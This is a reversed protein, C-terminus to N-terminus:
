AKDAKAKRRAALAWGALGSGLLLLSTPEPVVTQSPYQNIQSITAVAPGDTFLVVGIDKTVSLKTYLDDFILSESTPGLSSVALSCPVGGCLAASGNEDRFTESVNFFGFASTGPPASVGFGDISLHYDSIFTLPDLVEVDYNLDLDFNGFGASTTFIGLTGSIQFGALDALPNIQIAAETPPFFQGQPFGGIEGDFNFFHKDGIIFGELNAELDALTLNACGTPNTNCDLPVAGVPQVASGALTAWLLGLVIKKMEEREEVFSAPDKVSATLM